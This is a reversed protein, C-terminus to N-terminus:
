ARSSSELRRSVNVSLRFHRANSGGDIRHHLREAHKYQAAIDLRDGRDDGYCGARVAAVDLSCKRSQVVDIDMWRLLYADNERARKPLRWPSTSWHAVVAGGVVLHAGRGLYDIKTSLIHAVTQNRSNLDHRIDM